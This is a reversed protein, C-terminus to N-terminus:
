SADPLQTRVDSQILREQYKKQLEIYHHVLAEVDHNFKGSIKERTARIQDITADNM